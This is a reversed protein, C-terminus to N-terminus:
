APAVYGNAATPASEFVKGSYLTGVTLAGTGTITIKKTGLAVTSDAVVGHPALTAADITGATRYSVALLSVDSMGTEIVRSGSTLAGEDYDVVYGPQLNPSYVRTAM